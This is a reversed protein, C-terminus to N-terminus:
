RFRRTLSASPSVHTRRHMRAHTCAHMRANTSDEWALLLRLFQSLRCPEQVSQTRRRRLLTLHQSRQLPLPLPPPLPLPLPLPPPLPPPPRPPPLPPPPPPPLPLLPPQLPFLHSRQFSPQLLYRCSPTLACLPRSRFYFYTREYTCENAHTRAQTNAHTHARMAQAPALSLLLAILGLMPAQM